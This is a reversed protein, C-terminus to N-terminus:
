YVIPKYFESLFVMGMHKKSNHYRSVRIPQKDKVDLLMSISYTGRLLQGECRTVYFHQMNGAAVPANTTKEV